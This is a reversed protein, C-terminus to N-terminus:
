SGLATFKNQEFISQLEMEIAQVGKQGSIRKAGKVFRATIKAFAAEARARHREKHGRKFNMLGPAKMNRFIQFYHRIRDSARTPDFRYGRPTKRIVSSLALAHGLVGTAWGRKMSWGRRAKKKRWEEGYQGVAVPDGNKDFYQENEFAESIFALEEGAQAQLIEPLQRKYEERAEGLIEILRINASSAM